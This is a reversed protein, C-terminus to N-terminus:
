AAASGAFGLTTMLTLSVQPGFWLTLPALLMGPLLMLNNWMVNVGLPANLAHTVLAPLRGHSVATAAYRFYWAFADADGVDGAAVRSATDAWLRWTVVVAATVYCGVVVVAASVRIRPPRAVIM